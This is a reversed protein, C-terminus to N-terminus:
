LEACVHHFGPWLRVAETGLHSVSSLLLLWSLIVYFSKNGAGVAPCPQAIKERKIVQITKVRIIVEPKLKSILTTM